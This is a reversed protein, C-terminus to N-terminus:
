PKEETFVDFRSSGTGTGRGFTTDAPNAARLAVPVVSALAAIVWAQWNTFDISGTAVWDAVALSIVITVFSRLYSAWPSAAFWDQFAQM